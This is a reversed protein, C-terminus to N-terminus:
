EGEKELELEMLDGELLEEVNMWHQRSMELNKGHM